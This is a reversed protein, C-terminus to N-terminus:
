VKRPLVNLRFEIKGVRVNDLGVSVVGPATGEPSEWPVHLDFGLQRPQGRWEFEILSKGVGANAVSLHVALRSARAVERSVFGSAILEADRHFARSLTRVNAVTDPTHLYVALKVSQGPAVTAPGYVSVQVKDAASQWFLLSRKVSKWLVSDAPPADDEPARPLGPRPDPPTGHLTDTSAAALQWNVPVPVSLRPDAPRAAKVPAPEARTRRSERALSEANARSPRVPSVPPLDPVTEAAEPLDFTISADSDDRAPPRIVGSGSAAWSTAGPSNSETRLRSFSISLPTLPEAASLAALLGQAEGLTPFREAPNPAMMRELVDSLESSISPNVVAAPPPPGAHKARIQDALTPHPYPPLGTVAFYGVAGIAYQDAAPTPTFPDTALEPAAFALVEASAAAVSMTDFMSEDEAVNQGLLAGAGLELLSTLGDPALLVARPTIAGHAVGREHCAALAVALRALARAAESPTLPGTANVRDALREGAVHPWVLYHYGNASDVEALPVVAAHAGGAALTRALQKAQQAKWLSRLPLARVAFEGPRSTHTALLLPGLTGRGAHGIPRYPGLALVGAEGALARAAQFGTLAGRAVLFEALELATRGLFEASLAALRDPDMVRLRGLEDALAAADSSNSARLSLM